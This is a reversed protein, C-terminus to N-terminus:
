NKDDDVGNGPIEKSNVWLVPKLDEHLTDIGSDIVAVTIRTPRINKSKLFTYAKDLSIGNYGTTSPDLQYWNKPVSEKEKPQAFVSGSILVAALVSMLPKM